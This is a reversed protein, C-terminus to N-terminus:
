IKVKKLGFVSKKAPPTPTAFHTPPWTPDYWRASFDHWQLDNMMEFEKGGYRYADAESTFIDTISSKFM